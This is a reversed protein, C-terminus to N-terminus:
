TIKQISIKMKITTFKLIEKWNIDKWFQLTNKGTKEEVLGTRQLEPSEHGFFPVEKSLFNTLTRTLESFTLSLIIFEQLKYIMETKQYYGRLVRCEDGWSQIIISLNLYLEAMNKITSDNIPGLQFSQWVEEKLDSPFLSTTCSFKTFSIPLKPLSHYLFSHSCLRLWLVAPFTQTQTESRRHIHSQSRPFVVKYRQVETM